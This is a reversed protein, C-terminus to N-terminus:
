SVSVDLEFEAGPEGLTTTKSSDRQAGGEHRARIQPEGDEGFTIEFDRRQSFIAGPIGRAVLSLKIPKM